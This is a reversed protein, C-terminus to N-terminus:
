CQKGRNGRWVFSILIRAEYSTGTWAGLVTDPRINLVSYLNLDREKKEPEKGKLYVEQPTTWNGRPTSNLVCVGLSRRVGSEPSWVISLLGGGLM